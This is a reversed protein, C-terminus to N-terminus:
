QSMCGAAFSFQQWVTAPDPFVQNGDSLDVTVSANTRPWTSPEILPTSLTGTLVEYWLKFPVPDNPDTVQDVPVRMQVAWTNPALNPMTGNPPAQYGDANIWVRMTESLWGPAPQILPGLKGNANRPYYNTESILGGSQDATPTSTKLNIKIIRD